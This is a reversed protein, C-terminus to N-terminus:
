LFSVGKMLNKYYKKPPKIFFGTQEESKRERIKEKKIEMKQNYKEGNIGECTQKIENSGECTNKKKETHKPSDKLFDSLSLSKEIYVNKGENENSRRKCEINDLQNDNNNSNKKESHGSWLKEEKQKLNHENVMKDDFKKMKEQNQIQEENLFLDNRAKKELSGSKANAFVKSDFNLIKKPSNFLWAVSKEDSDPAKKKKTRTKNKPWFLQLCLDLLNM